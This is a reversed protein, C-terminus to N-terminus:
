RQIILFGNQRESGNGFDVIFFYTGAPLEGGAYTGQWNNRYPNGRFVEDGWQNFIVILNDPFALPDALCPIVFYDNIGDGNPTIITPIDCPADGGIEFYVTATSCNCGDACIEYTFFDNGAYRIDARYIFSGDPLIEVVGHTPPTIM